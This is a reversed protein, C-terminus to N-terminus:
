ETLGPPPWEWVSQGTDRNWYFPLGGYKETVHIEWPAPLSLKKQKSRSTGPSRRLGVAEMAARYNRYKEIMKSDDPNSTVLTGSPALRSEREVASPGPSSQSVTTATAGEIPARSASTTAAPAGQFFKSSEASTPAASKTSSSSSAAHDNRRRADRSTVAFDDQSSAESEVASRGKKGDVPLAKHSSSDDDAVTRHSGSGRSRSFNAAATAANGAAEEGESGLEDGEAGPPFNPATLLQELLQELHQVSRCLAMDVAPNSSATLSAERRIASVQCAQSIAHIPPQMQPELHLEVMEVAVQQVEVVAELLRALQEGLLKKSVQVHEQQSRKMNLDQVLVRVIEDLAARDLERGLLEPRYHRYEEIAKRLPLVESVATTPLPENTLPSRNGSSRTRFWAEIAAREYVTGDATAVPDVMLEQTIPCLFANPPPLLDAFDIDVM